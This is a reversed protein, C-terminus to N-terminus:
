SGSVRPLTEPNPPASVTARPLTTTEPSTELTTRPLGARAELKAMAERCAARVLDSTTVDREVGRLAPLAEQAGLQGLASAANTARVPDTSKVAAILADIIEGRAEHQQLFSVAASGSQLSQRFADVLASQQLQSLAEEATPGVGDEGLLPILARTAGPDGIKGLARISALRVDSKSLLALLAPLARVNGIAGLADVAAQRARFWPCATTAILSEVGERARLRGLGTASQEVVLEVNIGGTTATLALGQQFLEAARPDRLIKEFAEATQGPNGLQRLLPDIGSRVLTQFHAGAALGVVILATMFLPFGGEVFLLGFGFSILAGLGVAKGAPLSSVVTPGTRTRAFWFALGASISMVCGLVGLLVVDSM